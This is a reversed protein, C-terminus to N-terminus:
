GAMYSSTELLPMVYSWINIALKQLWTFMAFMVVQYSGCGVYYKYSCTYCRLTTHLYVSLLITVHIVHIFCTFMLLKLLLCPYVLTFMLLCPNVHTFMLLCPYVHTFMPLCSYVHAFRPLCSYVHTFM